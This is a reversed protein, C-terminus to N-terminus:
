GNSKLPMPPIEFYCVILETLHNLNSQSVHLFHQHFPLGYIYAILLKGIIKKIDNKSETVVKFMVPLALLM